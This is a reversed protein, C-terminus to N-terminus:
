APKAVAFTGDVTVTVVGGVAKSTSVTTTGGDAPLDFEALPEGFRDAYGEAPLDVEISGAFTECTLHVLQGKPSTARLRIRLNADAGGGVLTGTARIPSGQDLPGTCAAGAATTTVVGTLQLHGTGSLVGEKNTIKLETIEATFTNTLPGFVETDTGSFTVDWAGARVTFTVTKNAIGRNSVSKFEIKGVDGENPGSTYTVTAPAAQKEGDPALAKVGTLTAEVPKDLENGEIKHLLKATVTTDEDPGVDGGDPDVILEVCKGSKWLKEAEKTAATITTEMFLNTTGWMKVQEDVTTGEGGIQIDRDVGPLRRGAGDNAINDSSTRTAVGSNTDGAAGQSEESGKATGEIRSINADDGVTIGVEASMEKSIGKGSGGGQSYTENSTLKVRAQAHGSADPCFDVDVHGSATSDISYVVAGTADVVQGKTKMTLDVSLQSGSVVANVTVTTSVTGTNQGIKVTEPTGDITASKPDNAFDDLSTLLTAWVQMSNFGPSPVFYGVDVVDGHPAFGDIGGPPAFGDATSDPVTGDPPSAAISNAAGAAADERLQTLVAGADADMAAALDLAGPGLDALGARERDDARLALEPAILSGAPDDFDIVSGVLDAVVNGPDATGPVTSGAPTDDVATSGSRTGGGGSCATLTAIAGAIVYEWRRRASRVGVVTPSPGVSRFRVGM